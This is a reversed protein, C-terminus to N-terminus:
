IPFPQGKNTLQTTVVHVTTPDPIVLIKATYNVTNVTDVVISDSFSKLGAAKATHHDRKIKEQGLM